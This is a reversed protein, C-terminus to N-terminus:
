ANTTMEFVCQSVSLPLSLYTTNACVQMCRIQPERERFHVFGWGKGLGTTKDRFVRVQTLTRM